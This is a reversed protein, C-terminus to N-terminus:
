KLAFRYFTQKGSSTPTVELSLFHENDIFISRLVGYVTIGIDAFVL